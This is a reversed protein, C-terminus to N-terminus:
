DDYSWFRNKYVFGLDQLDRIAQTYCKYRKQVQARSLEGDCSLNEPSLMCDLRGFLNQAVMEDIQDVSVEPQGFMRAITNEEKLFLKLSM